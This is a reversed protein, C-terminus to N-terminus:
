TLFMGFNVLLPGSVFSPDVLLLHAVVEGKKTLQRAIEMAVVAGICYGGLVYPGHPTLYEDHEPESSVM